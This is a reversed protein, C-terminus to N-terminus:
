NMKSVAETRRDGSVGVAVISNVEIMAAVDHIASELLVLFRNDDGLRPVELYGMEFGEYEGLLEAERPM